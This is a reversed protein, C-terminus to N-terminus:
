VRDHLRSVEGVRGPYKLLLGGSRVPDTDSWESAIAFRSVGAALRGNVDWSIAGVTDQTPFEAGLDKPPVSPPPNALMKKWHEWEVICRPAAM